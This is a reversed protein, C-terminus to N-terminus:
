ILNANSLKMVLCTFVDNLVRNCHPLSFIGNVDWVNELMTYMKVCLCVARIINLRCQNQKVFWAILLSQSYFRAATSPNLSFNLFIM